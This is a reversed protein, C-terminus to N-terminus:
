PFNNFVGLVQRVPLETGIQFTWVLYSLEGALTSIMKLVELALLDQSMSVGVVQSFEVLLIYNKKGLKYKYIYMLNKITLGSNAM